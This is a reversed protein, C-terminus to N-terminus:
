ASSGRAWAISRVRGYREALSPFLFAGILQGISGSAILFGVQGPTLGWKQILLPLTAAIVIVDFGDFFTATGILIRARVQMANAPLREIRAIISGKTVAHAATAADAIPTATGGHDVVTNSMSRM